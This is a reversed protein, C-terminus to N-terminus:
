TKGGPASAAAAMRRAVLWPLRILMGFALRIHTRTILVNDLIPRFHSLGDAPYKVASPVSRVEIGEWVAAPPRREAGLAGLLRELGAREAACTPCRELHAELEAREGSELVGGASALLARIRPCSM